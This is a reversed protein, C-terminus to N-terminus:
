ALVLWAISVIVVLLIVYRWKRRGAAGGLRWSALRIGELVETRRTDPHRALFEEVAVEIDEGLERTRRSTRRGPRRVWTLRKTM